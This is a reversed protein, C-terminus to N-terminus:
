LVALHLSVVILADRLVVWGLGQGAVGAAVSL